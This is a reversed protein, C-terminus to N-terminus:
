KRGKKDPYGMAQAFMRRGAKTDWCKLCIAARPGKSKKNPSLKIVDESGGCLDCKM